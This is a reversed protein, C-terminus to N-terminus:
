ETTTLQAKPLGKRARQIDCTYHGIEVESCIGPRKRQGYITCDMTSTNLYPCFGKIYVYVTGSPNEIVNLGVPLTQIEDLTMGHLDEPHVTNVTQGELFREAERSSLELGINQCCAAPCGLAACMNEPTGM